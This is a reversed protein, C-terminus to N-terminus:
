NDYMRSWWGQETYQLLVIKQGLNTQVLVATYQDPLSGTIHVQQIELVDYSSVAGQDSSVLKFVKAVVLEPSATAPLDITPSAGNQWLHDSSLKTVLHGIPDGITLSSNSIKTPTFPPLNTM